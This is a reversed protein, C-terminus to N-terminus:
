IEHEKRHKCYETFWQNNGGAIRILINYNGWIDEKRIRQVEDQLEWAIRVKVKVDKSKLVMDQDKDRLLSTNTENILDCKERYESYEKQLRDLEDSKQNLQNTKGM